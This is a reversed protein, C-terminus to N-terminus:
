LGLPAQWRKKLERIDVSVVPNGNLGLIEIQQAAVVEGVRAVPCGKLIEEFRTSDDAHVSVLFRCPSEAFLAVDDRDVDELLLSGLSIQAGLGGSFASEALAVGLGGDSLDHCSAVLGSKIATHLARYMAIAGVPDSVKPVKNGVFGKSALFESAGTEDRTTGLIYILDGSIKFDPTVSNRIDPVIGIASFLVTPPISIKTEGIHYDNKMSDKGSICPIRYVTCIDYLAENARVLQALKYEGDPTKDSQVPDCWCFNDLGAMRDPDAGVSVINRVAEDICAAMMWFTDIDSYRPVIGCGVAIGRFKDLIPRFVAADGPGDTTIGVLPKIITGAQVEHDYQRILREKSCINWRSMLRLLDHTLDTASEFSPEPYTPQDWKAMLTMRPLGQHLFDLPLLAITRDEWMVSFLGDDTFEGLDTAQVDLTAAL